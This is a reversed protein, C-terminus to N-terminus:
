EGPKPLARCNAAHANAQDRASRLWWGVGNDTADCGLCRWGHDEVSGGSGCVIVTAGGQTLFRMHIKWKTEAPATTEPMATEKRRTMFAPLPLSM